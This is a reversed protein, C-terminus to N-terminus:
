EDRLDRALPVVEGAAGAAEGDIEFSRVPLGHEVAGVLVLIPRPPELRRPAALLIRRSREGGGRSPPSPASFGERGNRLFPVRAGGTAVGDRNARAIASILLGSRGRGTMRQTRSPQPSRASRASLPMRRARVGFQCRM